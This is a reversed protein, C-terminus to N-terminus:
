KDEQKPYPVTKLTKYTTGFQEVLLLKGGINVVLYSKSLAPTSLHSFLNDFMLESFSSSLTRASIIAVVLADTGSFIGKDPDEFLKVKTEDGPGPFRAVPPNELAAELKIIHADKNKVTQELQEVAKDVTKRKM